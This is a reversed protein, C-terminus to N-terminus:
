AEHANLINQVASELGSMRKQLDEDDLDFMKAWIGALLALINDATVEEAQMKDLASFLAEAESDYENDPAGHIEIYGEIDEKRLIGQIQSLTIKM